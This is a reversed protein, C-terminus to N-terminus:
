VTENGNTRSRIFAYLGVVIFGSLPVLYGLAYSGTQRAIYGLAPPMIAAGALAMVIWSGGLKTNPGLGKVGLAFITPYMISMFFRTAVLACGGVMGPRLIGILMLAVNTVAYAGMMRAPRFWRMLWTSVIRGLSLAILHGTLFLAATREGVKKGYTAEYLLFHM